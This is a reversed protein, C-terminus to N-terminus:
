KTCDDVSFDTEDSNMTVSDAERTMALSVHLVTSIQDTLKMDSSITVGFSSSQLEKKQAYNKMM